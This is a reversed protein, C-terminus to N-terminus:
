QEGFFKIERISNWRSVDAGHFEIKVYRARTQKLKYTEFDATTRKSECSAALEFTEGDSSTYVEFRSVRASANMMSVAVDTLTVEKGMDYLLWQDDLASWRSENDLNGDITNEPPYEKQPTDSAQVSVPKYEALGEPLGELAASKFTFYYQKQEGTEPNKVTVVAEPEKEGYAESVSVQYTEDADASIKPLAKGYPLRVLYEFIEPKFNAYSEGDFLVEKVHPVDATTKGSVDWEELPTLKGVGSPASGGRVIPVFSVAFEMETVNDATIFLKRYLSNDAQGKINPSTPLPEADMVQLKLDKDACQLGVWMRRGNLTLIASRGDPAIEVEASTHAFWYFTSPKVMQFKDQVVARTRNDTLMYGRQYNKVYTYYPNTLDVVALGGTEESDFRVVPAYFGPQGASKDPNFVMVNHGEARIRYLEDKEFQIGSLNTYTLEDRGLDEFWRQGHAYLAFAGSDAHSHNAYNAGGHFAFFMSYDNDFSDRFSGSEVNRFYADLPMDVSDQSFLEPRYWIIDYVTPAAQGNELAKKRLVGMGSDNNRLAFYMFLSSQIPTVWSDSFAFAGKENQLYIPFYGSKYIGGAQFRGYDTGLASELVAVYNIYHIMAYEWYGVGEVNGGDPETTAFFNEMCPFSSEIIEACEEPYEDFLAVAGMVNGGNGVATWNSQDSLWQLKSRTELATAGPTTERRYGNLAHTLGLRMMGEAIYTRQAPTMYHYFWDYALAMATLMNALLIYGEPQWSDYEVIAKMDEYAKEGYQDGGEINYVLGLAEFRWLVTQSDMRVGDTTRYTFPETELAADAKQKISQYWKALYPDTKMDERIRDFDSKQALVRPHQGKTNEAFDRKIQERTPFWNEDETQKEQQNLVYNRIQEAQGDNNFYVSATGFSAIGSGHVASRLHLQKAFPNLSLYLRGNVAHLGNEFTLEQQKGNWSFSLRGENYTYAIGLFRMVDNAPAYAEGNEVLAPYALEVRELGFAAQCSGNVVTLNGDMFKTLDSWDYLGLNDPYDAFSEDPRVADGEYIKIDDLWFSTVAEPTTDGVMYFRVEQWTGMLKSGLPIRETRQGDVIVNLYGREANVELAIDYWRNAEYPMIQRGLSTIMGDQFRLVLNMGATSWLLIGKELNVDGCMYKGSIVFNRDVINIKGSISPSASGIGSGKGVSYLRLAKNDDEMKEVELYGCYNVKLNDTYWYGERYLPHRGVTIGEFTDYLYTEFSEEGAASVSPLVGMGLIFVFILFLSCKRM